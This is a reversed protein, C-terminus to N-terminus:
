TKTEVVSGHTSHGVLQLIHVSAPAFVLVQWSHSSGKTTTPPLQVSHSFPFTFSPAYYIHTGQLTGKQSSHLSTPVHSEHLAPYTAEASLVTQLLHLSLSNLDDVEGGCHVGQLMLISLQAWHESLSV